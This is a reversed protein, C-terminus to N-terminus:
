WLSAKEGEDSTTIDTVTDVNRSFITVWTDGAIAATKWQPVGVIFRCVSSMTRILSSERKEVWQGNPRTMVVNGSFSPCTWTEVMCVADPVYLHGM